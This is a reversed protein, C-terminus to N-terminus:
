NQLLHGPLRILKWRTSKDIKYCHGTRALAVWAGNEGSTLSLRPVRCVSIQFNKRVERRITVQLCHPGTCAKYHFMAEATRQFYSLTLFIGCSLKIQPKILIVNNIVPTLYIVCNSKKKSNNFYKLGTTLQCFFHKHNNLSTFNPIEVWHYADYM